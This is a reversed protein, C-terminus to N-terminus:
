LSVSTQAGAGGLFRRDGASALSLSPAICSASFGLPWGRPSIHPLEWLEWLLAQITPTVSSLPWCPAVAGCSCQDHTARRSRVQYHALSNVRKWDCEIKTTVDEDQLIVRAMRGQRWEASWLCSLTPPLM